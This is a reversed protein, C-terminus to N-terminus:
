LLRGDSARVGLPGFLTCWLYQKVGCLEAPMVSSHSLPWKEPNPTRWIERGTAKDFAIMLAEGGIGLIVRDPEILPCQGNYWEPIEAKYDQVLNKRWLERGTAADLCHFVCKPDLSFVYKGDVAPVTRTIGHNPRIRRKEKFRWQEQGDELNLCRVLWENAKRDYDNLYVRGSHIAAGAYGQCAETTWLVKPGGVPWTRSLGTEKSINDRGAGRFQPWDDAAVPAALLTCGSFISIWRQLHRM